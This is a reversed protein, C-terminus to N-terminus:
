KFSECAQFWARCVLSIKGVVDITDCYDFIRNLDASSLNELNNQTQTSSSKKHKELM